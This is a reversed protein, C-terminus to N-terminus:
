CISDSSNFWFRISVTVCRNIYYVGVSNLCLSLPQKSYYVGKGLVKFVQLFSHRVVRLPISIIWINRVEMTWSWEGWMTTISEEMFILINNYLFKEFVDIFMCKIAIVGYSVTCLFTERSSYFVKSNTIHALFSPFISMSVSNYTWNGKMLDSFKEWEQVWCNENLGYTKSFIIM